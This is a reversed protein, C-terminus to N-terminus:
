ASQFRQNTSEEIGFFEIRNKRAAMQPPVQVYHNTAEMVESYEHYDKRIRWLIEACRKMSPRLQRTPALCQRALKLVKEVVMLATPNRRLKPDMALVVEGGKLRQLAQMANCGFM